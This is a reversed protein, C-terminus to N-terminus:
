SCIRKEYLIILVIEGGEVELEERDSKIYSRKIKITTMIMM